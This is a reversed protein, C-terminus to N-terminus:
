FMSSVLTFSQTSNGAINTKKPTVPTFMSLQVFPPQPLVSSSILWTSRINIQFFTFSMTQSPPKLHLLFCFTPLNHESLTLECDLIVSTQYLPLHCHSNSRTALLTCKSTSKLVPSLCISFGEDMTLTIMPDYDGPSSSTAPATPLHMLRQSIHYLTSFYHNLFASFISHLLTQTHPTHTPFFRFM